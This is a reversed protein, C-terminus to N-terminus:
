RIAKQDAQLAQPLKKNMEFNKRCGESSKPGEMPGDRDYCKINVLVGVKTKQMSKNKLDDQRPSNEAALM